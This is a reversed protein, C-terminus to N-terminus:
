SDMGEFAMLNKEGLLKWYKGKKEKKNGQIVFKHCTCPIPCLNWELLQKSWLLKHQVETQTIKKKNSHQGGERQYDSTSFPHSVMENM